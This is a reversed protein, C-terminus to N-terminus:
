AAVPGDEHLLDFNPMYQGDFSEWLHLKLDDGDFQHLLFEISDRDLKCNMTQLADYIAPAEGVSDWMLCFMVILVTQIDAYSLDLGVKPGYRMMQRIAPANEVIGQMSIRPDDGNATNRDGHSGTFM